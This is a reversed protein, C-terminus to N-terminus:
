AEKSYNLVSFIENKIAQLHTSYTTKGPTDPRVIDPDAPMREDGSASLIGDWYASIHRYIECEARELHLNLAIDVSNVYELIENLRIRIDSCAKTHGIQSRLKSDRNSSMTDTNKLSHYTECLKFIETAYPELALTTACCIRNTYESLSRANEMLWPTCYKGNTTCLQNRKYDQKGKIRDLFTWRKVGNPTPRKDLIKLIPKM